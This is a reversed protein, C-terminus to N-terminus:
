PSTKNQVMPFDINTCSVLNPSQKTLFVHKLANQTIEMPLFSAILLFAFLTRHLELVEQPFKEREM